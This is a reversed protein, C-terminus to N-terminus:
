VGAQGAGQHFSEYFFGKFVLGADGILDDGILHVGEIKFNAAGTGLTGLTMQSIGGIAATAVIDAINGIDTRAVATAAVGRVFFKTSPLAKIVPITAGSSAASSQDAVGYIQLDGAASRDILGTSAVTVADGKGILANAAALVMNEVQFPGEAYEFGFPADSSPM